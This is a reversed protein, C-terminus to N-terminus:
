RRRWQAFVPVVLISLLLVVGLLIAAAPLDIM